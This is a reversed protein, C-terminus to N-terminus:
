WGGSVGGGGFGGGGGGGFSGFGGGGFGGGGGWSRRGGGLSSALLLFLFLRPHRIFLIVAGFLILISFLSNLLGGGKTPRGNYVGPQFQSIGTINVGESSAIERICALTALFIGASYEEKKFYPVLYKRGISGVLSDPLIGELGYGVEFRYKREKLAVVLLVGNDKGKQGLKWRDHATTISFGDISEGELSTVTLVIVQASTKQELEKLYGNLRQEVNNEIIDALDVVYHSPMQPIPPVVAFSAATFFLWICISLFLNRFRFNM